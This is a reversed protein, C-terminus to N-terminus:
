LSLKGFEFPLMLLVANATSKEMTLSRALHERVEHVSREEDEDKEAKATQEKALCRKALLFATDLVYLWACSRNHKKKTLSHALHERVKTREAGQGRRGRSTRRAGRKTLTQCSIVVGSRM